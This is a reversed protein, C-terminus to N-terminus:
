SHRKWDEDDRVDSIDVENVKPLDDLAMPLITVHTYTSVLTNAILKVLGMLLYPIVVIYPSSLNNM